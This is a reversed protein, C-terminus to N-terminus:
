ESCGADKLPCSKPFKSDLACDYHWFKGSLKKCFNYRYYNERFPCEEPSSVNIETIKM